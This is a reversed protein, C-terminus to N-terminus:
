VGHGDRISKRVVSCYQHLTGANLGRVKAAESASKGCFFIEFVANNMEDGWGYRGLTESVEVRTFGGGATTRRAPAAPVYPHAPDCIEQRTYQRGGEDTDDLSPCVKKRKDSHPRVWPNHARPLAAAAASWPYGYKECLKLLYGLTPFQTHPKTPRYGAPRPESHWCPARLTRRRRSRWVRERNKEKRLHPPLRYVTRRARQKKLRQRPKIRQNRETRTDPVVVWECYNEFHRVAVLSSPSCEQVDLPRFHMVCSDGFWEYSINLDRTDVLPRIGQFQALVKNYATDM